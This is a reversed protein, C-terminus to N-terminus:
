IFSTFLINGIKEKKTIDDSIRFGEAIAANRLKDTM